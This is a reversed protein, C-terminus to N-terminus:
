LVPQRDIIIRIYLRKIVDISAEYLEHILSHLRRLKAYLLNIKYANGKRHVGFAATRLEKRLAKIESRIHTELKKQMVQGSPLNAIAIDRPSATQDDDGQQGAGAGSQGSAGSANEGIRETVSEILSITELLGELKAPQSVIMAPTAAVPANQSSPTETLQPEM